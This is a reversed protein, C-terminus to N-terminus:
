AARNGAPADGSVSAGTPEHAVTDRGAPVPSSPRQRAHEMEWLRAQKVFTVVYAQCMCIQLGALGDLFGLRGIYLLLFRLLPRFLLRWLSTRQGADWMDQAGWETYKLYKAFYEDYSWYSYHNLRHRL